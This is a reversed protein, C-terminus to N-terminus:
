PDLRVEKPMIAGQLRNWNDCYRKRNLPNNVPIFPRYFKPVKKTAPVPM